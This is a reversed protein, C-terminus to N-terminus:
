CNNNIVQKNEYSSNQQEWIQPVLCQWKTIRVPRFRISEFPNYLIFYRM